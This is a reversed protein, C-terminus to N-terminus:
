RRTTKCRPRQTRFDPVHSLQAAATGTRGPTAATGAGAATAPAPAGGRGNPVERGEEALVEEVKVEGARGVRGQGGQGQGGGGPGRRRGGANARGFGTNAACRDGSAPCKLTWEKFIPEAGVTVQSQVTTFGLIQVQIEWVGPALNMSYRGNEDTYAVVKTDGQRATVTAGPIFQDAARVSGSQQM